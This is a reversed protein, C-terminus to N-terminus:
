RSFNSIDGRIPILFVGSWTYPILSVRFFALNCCFIQNWSRIPDVLFCSFQLFHLFLDFRGWLFASVTYSPSQPCFICSIRREIRFFEPNLFGLVFISINNLDYVFARFIRFYIYNLFFGTEIHLLWNPKWCLEHVFLFYIFYSRISPPSYLRFLCFM